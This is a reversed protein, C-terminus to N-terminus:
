RVTRSSGSQGDIRELVPDLNQYATWLVQRHFDRVLLLVKEPPLEVSRPRERRCDGWNRDYGVLGSILIAAALTTIAIIRAM